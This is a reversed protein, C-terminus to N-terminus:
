AARCSSWRIWRSFYNPNKPLGCAVFTEPIPVISESKSNLHRLTTLVDVWTITTRVAFDVATFHFSKRTPAGTQCRLQMFSFTQTPHRWKREVHNGQFCVSYRLSVYLTQLGEGPNLPNHQKATSGLHTKCNCPCRQLAGIEHTVLLGWSSTCRSAHWPKTNTLSVISIYRKGFFCRPPKIESTWLHMYWFNKAFTM